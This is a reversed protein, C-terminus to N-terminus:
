PLRAGLSMYWPRTIILTMLLFGILAVNKQFNVREAMSAMPDSIKWFTHIQFSVGLLFIILLGTGFTPHYGLLFSAGGLLLLVGTGLVALKPAPTGKSQAYGAMMGSRTFHNYAAMLFYGGVIVRGILFLINLAQVRNM